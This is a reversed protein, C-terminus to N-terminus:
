LQQTPSPPQYTESKTTAVVQSTERHLTELNKEIVNKKEFLDIVHNAISTHKLKFEELKAEFAQRSIKKNAYNNFLEIMSSHQQKILNKVDTSTKEYDETHKVVERNLPQYQQSFSNAFPVTTKIQQLQIIENNIDASLSTLRTLYNKELQQRMSASQADIIVADHSHSISSLNSIGISGEFLQKMIKVYSGNKISTLPNIQDPQSINLTGEKRNTISKPM